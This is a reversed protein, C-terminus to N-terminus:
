PLAEDETYILPPLKYDPRLLYAGSRDRVAEVPIGLDQLTVIYDRVTRINVEVRRVLDAGRMRGQAQLLEWATLVRATLRYLV